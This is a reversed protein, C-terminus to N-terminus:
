FDVFDLFVQRLIQNVQDIILRLKHYTDGPPLKLELVLRDIKNICLVIPLREQLAHRIARETAMMVGEHADVVIVVGDALRYAATLEDSFNVHGPTDIVNLLYSKSRSDSMVISIPM